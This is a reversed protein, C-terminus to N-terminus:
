GIKRWPRITLHFADAGEGGSFTLSDGALKWDASYTPVPPCHGELTGSAPLKCGTLSSLLKGDFVFSVNSGSGRLDGAELAKDSVSNGCDRGPADLARCTLVYRGDEIKLTWTGSWGPGNSIGAAEVAAVPIETRYLGNPLAAVGGTAATVTPQSDPNRCDPPVQLADASPHREAIAQVDKLLPASEPDAALRKLVPAIAARLTSLQGATAAVFRAGQGCLKQASASDDYSGDISAQVARDAAQRVWGHQTDTLADFRKQSLALVFVKPWLVVNATVYGAETTFGNAAYQAVDFEAGRLTGDKVQDVWAMGVNVPTGGLARVTDIQVPSNYARFAAGRWDEVGLLPGKAAFPRRLPGAALGLGAVGTGKLQELSRARGPGSVFARVASRSSLLMPAEVAELGTIGAEAFARTAPWGGDLDGSAIARVLRSEADADKGGYSTSVEVRLRGGSVSKLGEVFAQPGYLQGSSHVVGDITAFRLQLTDGGTRDAPQAGGCAVLATAMTALGALSVWHRGHYRNM